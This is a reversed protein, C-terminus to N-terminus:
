SGSDVRALFGLISSALTETAAVFPWHGSDELIVLESGPISDHIRRAHAM